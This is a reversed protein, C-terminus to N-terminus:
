HLHQSCPDLSCAASAPVTGNSLGASMQVNLVSGPQLTLSCEVLGLVEPPQVATSVQGLDPEKGKAATWIINLWETKSIKVINWDTSLEVSANGRVSPKQLDIINMKWTLKVQKFAIEVVQASQV